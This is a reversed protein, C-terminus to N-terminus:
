LSQSFVNIHSSGFCCLMACHKNAAGVRCNSSISFHLRSNALHPLFTALHLLFTLWNGQHFPNPTYPPISFYSPYLFILISLLSQINSFISSLIVLLQTSVRVMKETWERLLEILFTSNDENEMRPFLSQTSEWIWARIWGLSLRSLPWSSSKAKTSPTLSVHLGNRLRQSDIRPEHCRSLHPFYVWCTIQSCFVCKKSHVNLLAEHGTVSLDYVSAKNFVM